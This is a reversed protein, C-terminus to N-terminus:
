MGTIYIYDYYHPIIATYMAVHVSKGIDCDKMDERMPDCIFFTIQMAKTKCMTGTFAHCVTIRVACLIAM